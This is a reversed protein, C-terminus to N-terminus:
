NDGGEWISTALPSPSESGDSIYPPPASSERSGLSSGKVMWCWLLVMAFGVFAGFRFNADEGRGFPLQWHPPPNLPKLFTFPPRGVIVVGRCRYLGGREWRPGPFIWGPVGNPAM